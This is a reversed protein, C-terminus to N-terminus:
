RSYSASISSKALTNQHIYYGVMAGSASSDLPISKTKLAYITFVYRHSTKEPPCAGDYQSNGFDNRAQVAGKPLTKAGEPLETTEKPINFLVWHWWGSGSPADPDFVTIAYSETGEPGDTWDLAPSLNKGKCGFIKGVQKAPLATDDDFSPSVLSFVPESAQSVSGVLLALILFYKLKNM